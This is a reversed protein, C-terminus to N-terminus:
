MNSKMIYVKVKSKETVGVFLDENKCGEERVGEGGGGEERM